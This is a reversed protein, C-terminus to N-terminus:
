RPCVGEPSPPVIREALGPRRMVAAALSRPNAPGLTRRATRNRTRRLCRRPRGACRAKVTSNKSSSSRSRPSDRMRVPRRACACRAHRVTRARRFAGAPRARSRFDRRGSSERFRSSRRWFRRRRRCRPSRPRFPGRRRRGTSAVRRSRDPGPHARRSPVCHGRFFCPIRWAHEAPAPRAVQSSM